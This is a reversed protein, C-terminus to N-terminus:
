QFGGRRAHKGAVTEAAHEVLAPLVQKREPDPPRHFPRRDRRVQLRNVSLDMWMHPIFPRELEDSLFALVRSLSALERRLVAFGEAVGEGAYLGYREPHGPERRVLFEHQRERQLPEHACRELEYLHRPRFCPIRLRMIPAM